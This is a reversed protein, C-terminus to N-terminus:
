FGHIGLLHLPSVAFSPIQIDKGTEGLLKHASGNKM